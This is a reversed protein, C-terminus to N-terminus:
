KHLEINKIAVGNQEINVDLQQPALGRATVALKYHGPPLDVTLKGDPGSTATVGGPEITATAGAVPRSTALNIIVVRLQGPPLRPDLTIPPAANTGKSLTLAASGPQKSAVAVAVEAATDDFVTKGDVTKGIPLKGIAYAGKGDTVATGTYNKLKITVTAGVVPKGAEDFVIGAVEATEVVVVPVPTANRVVHGAAGAPQKGGFRAQLGLGGTVLPEYPLLTVDGTMVQNALVGPVKAAEVFAVLTFADSVAVGLQLGGRLISAPAGEGVFVDTSGELTVYVRDGAPIRLALGGLAANWKSVGLSVRDELSLKDPQDVSSASNDLRFGADISATGFGVDISLLARADVSIASAAISPADKGPVWIGLQGGFAVRGSAGGYRVLLHPDGVYGDDSMASLGEHKDYRGDLSVALVLQSLPAYALAFAGIARKLTHEPGLLGKRYGYGSLLAVEVTGPPLTEATAVRLGGPMAGYGVRPPPPASADGTAKAAIDEDPAGAFAGSPAVVCALCLAAVTGWRRM